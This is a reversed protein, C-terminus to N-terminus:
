RAARQVAGAAPGHAALRAALEAAPHAPFLFEVAAFGDAGRRRATSSTTSPYLMSLNAAFRPSATVMSRRLPPATRRHPRRGAARAADDAVSPRDGLEELVASASTRTPTGSSRASATSCCRASRHRRATAVHPHAAGILEAVASRRAPPVAGAAVHGVKMVYYPTIPPVVDVTVWVGALTLAVLHTAHTHIVCRPRLDTASASTCRWRRSARNGGTQQGHADVAALRQPELTGLCADTPTILFGGDSGRM